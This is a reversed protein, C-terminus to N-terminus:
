HSTASKYWSQRKSLILIILNRKEERSDITKKKAYATYKVSEHAISHILSFHVANTDRDIVLKTLSYCNVDIVYGSVCVCVM